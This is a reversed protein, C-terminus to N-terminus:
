QKEKRRKVRKVCVATAVAAVITTSALGIYPALLGFKDAPVVIGGVSSSLELYVTAPDDAEITYTGPHWGTTDFRVGDGPPTTFQSKVTGDPNRITWTTTPAHPDAAVDFTDGVKGSISQPTVSGDSHKTFSGLYKAQVIGVYVLIIITSILFVLMAKRLMNWKM